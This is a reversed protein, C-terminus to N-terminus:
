NGLIERWAGVISAAEADETYQWSLRMANNRIDSWRSMNGGLIDELVPELRKALTVYDLNQALICNQMAGEGILEQQGGVSNYGAVLTGARMAELLSLPLGEADSMNIFLSSRRIEAAYQAQSLGELGVWCIDQVFRPNRSALVRKLEPLNAEKRKIYAIQPSRASPSDYYLSEDIASRVLYVPLGMAWRVFEATFPSNTLVREVDFSRWDVGDALFHYIYRWNLAIAVRRMPWEKMMNMILTFGEPIVAIDGRSFTDPLM